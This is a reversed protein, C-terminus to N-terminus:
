PMREGALSKRYWAITEGLGEEFGIRAEYGFARRAKGVDAQSHKVDGVRGAEYEPRLSAGLTRNIADVLELLTIRGGRAINYVEGSEGAGPAFVHRAALLNADVVNAVYTFDRSTEGDGFIVPNKGAMMETIFKAIVGSYPNDHAQRPGFVNFYRLTIVDLGMCAAYARAYLEQSAKAAAYPSMPRLPADERAPLPASGGYVSSSAAQVVRKVGAARAADFLTVTATISSHLSDLPARVSRPVSPISAQHLVHTVGDCASRAVESRTLDGELFRFRDAPLSLYPAINERRGTVFNDVGVVPTGEAVLREVLHSGIFGAAGTVLFIEKM